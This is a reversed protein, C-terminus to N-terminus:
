ENEPYLDNKHVAALKLIGLFSQQLQDDAYYAM